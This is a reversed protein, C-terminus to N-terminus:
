GNLIDDMYSLEEASMRGDISAIAAVLAILHKIEDGDMVQALAIVIKFSDNDTNQYIAIVDDTAMKTDFFEDAIMQFLKIENETINGDAASATRMVDILFNIYGSEDDAGYVDDLVTVYNRSVIDNLYKFENYVIEVKREINLNNMQLLSDRLSGM